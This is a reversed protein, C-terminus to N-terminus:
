MQHENVTAVNTEEKKFGQNDKGVDIEDRQVEIEKQYKRKRTWNEPYGHKSIDNWWQEEGSAWVVFVANTM